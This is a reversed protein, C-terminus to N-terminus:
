TWTDKLELLAHKKELQTYYELFGSISKDILSVHVEYIYLRYM